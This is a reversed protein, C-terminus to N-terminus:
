LTDVKGTIKSLVWERRAGIMFAIPTGSVVAPVSLFREACYAIAGTLALAMGATTALYFAAAGKSQPEQTSLQVAGGSIAAVVVLALGAISPSVTSVGAVGALAVAGLGVATTTPETM